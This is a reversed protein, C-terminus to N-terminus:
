CPKKWEMMILYPLQMYRAVREPPGGSPMPEDFYSLQLGEGLFAKFYASLPRHWNCIEIGGWAVWDAREELYGKIPLLVTGDSERERAGDGDATAFSNLNAVLIAGGPKVM